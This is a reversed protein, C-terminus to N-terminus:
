PALPGEHLPDFLTLGESHAGDIIDDTLHSVLEDALEHLSARLEIATPVDLVHHDPGVDVRAVRLPSVGLTHVSSDTKVVSIWAKGDYEVTLGAIYM